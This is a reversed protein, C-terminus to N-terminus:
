RPGGRWLEEKENSWVAAALVPRAAEQVHRVAPLAAYPTLEQLLEGLRILMRSSTLQTAHDIVQLTLACAQEVDVNSDCLHASAKAALSFARPRGDSRAPLSDEVAQVAQAGLGLNCFIRAQEHRVHAWSYIGIWHPESVTTTLDQCRSIEELTRVTAPRDGTASLALAQKALLFARALPPADVALAAGSGTYGVALRTHTAWADDDGRLRALQAQHVEQEGRRALVWAALTSDDSEQAFSFATGLLCRSTHPDGADLHMAAVRLSFETAVDLLEQHVRGRAPAHLRPQIINSLYDGAFARTHQGGYRRDSSTLAALMNRFIGIDALSIPEWPWGPPPASAFEPESMGDAAATTAATDVAAYGLGPGSGGMGVLDRHHEPGGSPALREPLRAPAFLAEVTLDLTRALLKKYYSRPRTGSEWNRLNRLMTALGPLNLGPDAIEYLRAVFQQPDDFRDERLRRLRQAWAPPEEGM